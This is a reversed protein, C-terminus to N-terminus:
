TSKHTKYIKYKKHFGFLCQLGTYGYFTPRNYFKIFLINKHVLFYVFNTSKELISLLDQELTESLSRLKPKGRVVREDLLSSCDQNPAACSGEPPCLADDEDEPPPRPEAAIDEKLRLRLLKDNM